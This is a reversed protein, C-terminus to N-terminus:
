IHILSLMVPQSFWSDGQAVTRVATVLTAGSEEKLVCGAVGHEVLQQICVEDCEGLLAIIPLTAKVRKHLRALLAFFPTTTRLNPSILLIDPPTALAAELETETAIVATLVVDEAQVFSEYVTEQVLQHRDALLVRIPEKSQTPQVM